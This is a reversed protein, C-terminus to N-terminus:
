RAPVAAAGVHHEAVPMHLERWALVPESGGIGGPPAPVVVVFGMPQHRLAQGATVSRRSSTVLAKRRTEPFGRPSGVDTAGPEGAEACDPSCPRVWVRRARGEPGRRPCPM